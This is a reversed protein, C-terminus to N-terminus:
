KQGGEGPIITFQATRIQHGWDLSADVSVAGTENHRFAVADVSDLIRNEDSEGNWEELAWDGIEEWVSDIAARAEDGELQTYEPNM